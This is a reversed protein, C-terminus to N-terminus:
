AGDKKGVSDRKPKRQGVRPKSKKTTTEPSPAGDEGEEAKEGSASTATLGLMTRLTNRHSECEQEKFAKEKEKIEALMNKLKLPPEAHPEWQKSTLTPEGQELATGYAKNLLTKLMGTCGLSQEYFYEWHSELDPAVSLPLHRQFTRLLKKFEKLDEPEDAHYRPFHITVSRRALQANLDMLSLLDHTGILVHVTSTMNALSKLTDMQDLLRRGSAMKKFHQAEDVIFARPCRYQVCQEFLHRLDPTTVTRDILLHGQENRHIGRVSYAIKHALMPEDAAILARTFYDRWSFNGSDPSPAEIAIVPIHGPTVTAVGAADEILQKVSRLRLTTKGVGTPGVVLILTTGAPYRIAHLLAEYTQKLRQHAIVKTEFYQRRIDIPQQLLERPFGLISQDSM